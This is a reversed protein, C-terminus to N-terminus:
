REHKKVRNCLEVVKKGLVEASRLGYEDVAIMHKRGRELRGTGNLSTVGTAGKGAIIIDFTSFFSNLSALTTELGGDRLFAVAMSGGVKYALKGGHIRGYKFVRMRDLTNAMIGSLRGAHVPSALLLGDSESVCPYISEMDDTISCYKEITQEKVCWDCHSCSSINKEALSIFDTEVDGDTTLRELTRRLFVETNGDRVPSGSIGVVKISMGLGRGKKRVSKGLWGEGDKL